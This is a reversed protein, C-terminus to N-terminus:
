IYLITTKMKLSLDKKEMEFGMGWDSLEQNEGGFTGQTNAFMSIKIHEIIFVYKFNSFLQM